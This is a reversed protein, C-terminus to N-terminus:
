PWRGPLGAEQEISGAIAVNRRLDEPQLRSGRHFSTVRGVGVAGASETGEIGRFAPHLRSRTTKPVSGFRGPNFRDSRARPAPEEVRATTLADVSLAPAEARGSGHLLRVSRAARRPEKFIMRRSASHDPLGPGHENIRNLSRGGLWFLKGAPPRGAASTVADAIMGCGHAVIASHRLAVRRVWLATISCLAPLGCGLM